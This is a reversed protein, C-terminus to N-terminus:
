FATEEKGMSYVHVEHKGSAMGLDVGQIDPRQKSM